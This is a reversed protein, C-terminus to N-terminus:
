LWGHTPSEMLLVKAGHIPDRDMSPLCERVAHLMHSEGCFFVVDYPHHVDPPHGAGVKTPTLTAHNHGETGLSGIRFRTYMRRRFAYFSIAVLNYLTDSWFASDNRVTFCLPRWSCDYRVDLNLQGAYCVLANYPSRANLSTGIIKSNKSLGIEKAHDLLMSCPSYGSRHLNGKGHINKNSYLTMHPCKTPLNFSFIPDSLGM